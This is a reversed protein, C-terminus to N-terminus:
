KDNQAFFERSKQSVQMIMEKLQTVNEFKQVPFLYRHFEVEIKKTYLDGSFDVIFTECSTNEGNVTPRNGFGTASPYKEDEVITRTIYVGEKPTCMTKPYIQNITPTGLTRGLSKGHVVEFDVTYPRGLMRNAKEMDGEALANRIETSSVTVGDLQVTPVIFVEINREACLKKLVEVNGSRKKGFCFSEGCFVAKAGMSKILIDDVFEEPTLASFDLFDPSYYLDIGMDKMVSVKKCLSIIDKGKHGLTITKTFTFVAKALNNQEAYQKMQDILFKHGIHIGDFYGMAVATNKDNKWSIRYVEQM